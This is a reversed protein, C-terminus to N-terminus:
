YLPTTAPETVPTKHPNVARTTATNANRSFYFFEEVQRRHHNHKPYIYITKKKKIPLYIPSKTTHTHTIKPLHKKHIHQTNTTKLDDNKLQKETLPIKNVDIFRYM